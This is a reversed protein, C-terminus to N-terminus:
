GKKGRCYFIEYTATITGFKQKYIKELETIQHRGLSTGNLGLGRTGTYKITNLLQQLSVYTEKLNEREISVQSFYKQLMEKIEAMELFAASSVKMDKRYLQNVSESLERFTAPAFISFLITGSPELLRSYNGLTTQLDDFWQFCANSSILDFANGFATRQADAILFDIEQEHLKATAVNIMAESIDVAKIKATPFSERLLKTYSGTGCGIDIINRFQNKPLIEILKAGAHDQINSYNDYCLAYRSFNKKITETKNM